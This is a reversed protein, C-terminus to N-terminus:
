ELARSVYKLSLVFSQPVTESLVWDPHRLIIREVRLQLRIKFGVGRITMSGGGGANHVSPPVSSVLMPQFIQLAVDMELAWDVASSYNM